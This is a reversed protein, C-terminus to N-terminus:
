STRALRSTSSGTYANLTVGWMCRIPSVITTVASSGSLLVMGSTRISSQSKLQCVLDYSRAQLPLAVASACITPQGSRQRSLASAEPFLELGVVRGYRGLRRLMGGTGCGIELIDLDPRRLLRDLLHFFIIRRGRFWFHNEELEAFQQYGSVEMSEDDLRTAAQNPVPTLSQPPVNRPPLYRDFNIDPSMGIRGLFTDWLEDAIEGLHPSGVHYRPSSYEEQAGNLHWTLHDVGIERALQRALDMEEPSDNWPFLIYRWILFPREQGLERRLRVCRRM